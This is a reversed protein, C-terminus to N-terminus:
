SSPYQPALQEHLEDSIVYVKRFQEKPKFGGILEKYNLISNAQKESLELEKWDDIKLTNPNFDKINEFNTLNKDLIKEQSDKKSQEQKLSDIVAEIKSFDKQNLDIQPSYQSLLVRGIDLFITLVVLAIIGTRESNIFYFYEKLPNAM